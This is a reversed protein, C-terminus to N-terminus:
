EATFTVEFRSTPSCTKVLTLCTKVTGIAVYGTSTEKLTYTGTSVEKSFGLSSTGQVRGTTPGTPTLTVTGTAGPSSVKLDFPHELDDVTGSISVPGVGGSAVYRMTSVSVTLTGIGRRSKSTFTLSAKKGAADPAVYTFQGPAKDVHDPSVSVAGSDLKATVPAELAAGDPKHTVKVTFPTTSARKVKAPLDATVAVCRGGQWVVRRQVVIGIVIGDLANRADSALQDAGAQDLGTTRFTTVVNRGQFSGDLSTHLGISSSTTSGNVAQNRIMSGDSVISAIEANDDVVAEFTGKIAVSAGASVDVSSGSAAFQVDFSGSVKGEADPCSDGTVSEKVTMTYTKGNKSMTVSLETGTPTVTFQGSLSVGDATDKLTASAGDAPLGSPAADNTYGIALGLGVFDAFTAGPAAGARPTIVGTGRVSGSALRDDIMGAGQTSSGVGADSRTGATAGVSTLHGFLRDEITALGADVGAGSVVDWAPNAAIQQHLLGAWFHPAQGPRPLHPAATAVDLGVAPSPGAGSSDGSSTAATSSCGTVALAVAVMVVSLRAVAGRAGVVVM